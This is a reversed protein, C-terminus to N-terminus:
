KRILPSKWISIIRIFEISLTIFSLYILLLFIYSLLLFFIVFICASLIQSSKAWKKQASRCSIGSALIVNNACLVYLGSVAHQPHSLHLISERDPFPLLSASSLSFPSFLSLVSATVNLLPRLLKFLTESFLWHVQGMIPLYAIRVSQM